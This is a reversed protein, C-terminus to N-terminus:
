DTAGIKSIWKYGATYGVPRGSKSGASLSRKFASVDKVGDYIGVVQLFSQNFYRDFFMNFTDEYGNRTADGGPNKVVVDNKTFVMEGDVEFALVKARKPRIIVPSGNEMIRAKDYFPTSSGAKVSSSQRFSSNISLGSGSVAYEIDFLRAEPSGTQYWEYVHHLKQPDMRANMDVFDKLMEVTSQGLNKMMNVKGDKAGDAFGVSYQLINSMKKMFEKDDFKITIM